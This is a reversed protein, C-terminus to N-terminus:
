NKLEGFDHEEDSDKFSFDRESGDDTTTSEDGSYAVNIIRHNLLEGNLSTWSSCTSEEDDSIPNLKGEEDDDDFDSVTIIPTQLVQNNKIYTRKARETSLFKPNNIPSSLKGAEQLLKQRDDVNAVELDDLILFAFSCLSSCHVIKELESNGRREFM